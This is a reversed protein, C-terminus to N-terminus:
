LDESVVERAFAPRFRGATGPFADGDEDQSFSDLGDRGFIVHRRRPMWAGFGINQEDLVELHTYQWKSVVGDPSFVGGEYACDAPKQHRLGRLALATYSFRDVSRMGINSFRQSFVELRERRTVRADDWDPLDFVQAGETLVFDWRKVRMDASENSFNSRESWGCWVTEHLSMQCLVSNLEFILRSLEAVPALLLVPKKFALVENMIEPTVSNMVASLIRDISPLPVDRETIQWRDQALELCQEELFERFLVENRLPANLTRLMDHRIDGLLKWQPFWAQVPEGLRMRHLLEPLQADSVGEAKARRGLDVRQFDM